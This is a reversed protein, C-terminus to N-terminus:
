ISILDFLGSLTSHPIIQDIELSPDEESESVDDDPMSEDFPTQQSLACGSCLEDAFEARMLVRKPDRHVLSPNMGM